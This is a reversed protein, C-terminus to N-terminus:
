GNKSSGVCVGPIDAEELVRSDRFPGPHLESCLEIIERVVGDPRSGASRYACGGEANNRLLCAIPSALEGGFEDELVPSIFNAPRNYEAPLFLLFLQKPRCIFGDPSGQKVRISV